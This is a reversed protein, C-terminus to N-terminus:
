EGRKKLYVKGAFRLDVYELSGDTLNLDKQASVLASYAEQEHGIVYTVRTGSALADDVEDSRVVMATVPSGLDGLRRGFALADPLQAARAITAGLPEQADGVLPAYLAFPNLTDPPPLPATSSADAEPVAAYVFGNPDYLYCYPVVGETPALGCWLGVATRPAIRIEMTSFGHRTMTIAAIEPHAALIAARVYHGAFFLASDRPILEWSSRALAARALDLPAPGPLLHETGTVTLSTIRLEPQHLGWVAGALALLALLLALFWWRRRAARRREKLRLASTRERVSSRKASM